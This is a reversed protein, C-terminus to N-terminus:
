KPSWLPNSVFKRNEGYEFSITFAINEELYLVWQKKRM